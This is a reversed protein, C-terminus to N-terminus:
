LDDEPYFCILFKRIIEDVKAKALGKRRFVQLLFFSSFEIGVIKRLIKKSVRLNGVLFICRKNFNSGKRDYDVLEALYKQISIM